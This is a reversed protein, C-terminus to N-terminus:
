TLVFSSQKQRNNINCGSHAAGRYKGTLHDLDRVKETDFDFTVECLWCTTCHQFRAKEESSM